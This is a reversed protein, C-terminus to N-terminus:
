LILMINNYICIIIYMIGGVRPCLTVRKFKHISFISNDNTEIQPVGGGGQFNPRSGGSCYPCAKCM